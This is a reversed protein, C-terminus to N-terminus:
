AATLLPETIEETIVIEPIESVGLADPRSAATLGPIFYLRNM